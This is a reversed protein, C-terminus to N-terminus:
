ARATTAAASGASAEAETRSRAAAGRIIVRGPEITVSHVHAPLPWRLLGLAAPDLMLRLTWVPLPQRGLAFDEVDLRLQRRDEGDVRARAGLYVWVRRDLWRRPLLGAGAALGAEELLQLITLQGTLEVRDDGVLRVGLTDIRVGRAQVLHRTLLANIEGETIIVPHTLQPRRVLDFLKQQARSGDAATPTPLMAADPRALVRWAAGVTGVIALVALIVLILSGLCGSCGLKM